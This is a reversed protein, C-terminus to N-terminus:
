PGLPYNNNFTLDRASVSTELDLGQFGGRAGKLTSNMAMHVINIKTVQNPLLGASATDNADGSGPNPQNVAPASTSSNYLDYSFKLYAVNEAVPMPAHGSVQRMLRPPSITNDVYYTIVLLRTGFGTTNTAISALSKPSTSAQNMHLVDATAFTATTATASATVEAVVATGGFRFLVLDGATLGFVSDNVNQITAGNNTCNSSTQSGATLAFTVTTANTTTAQYCDLFFTADTYVVTVADTAGQAALLTPGRVYGPLLGYLYPTTGQVPYTVSTSNAAGLYCPTGTAQACGYVPLTASTPLQIAAGNGLGAGALSLDHTLMNSAARFDQQLEARQTVTWTAAVGQSYLQVAAGLVITGLAMAIVMELLSFGSKRNTSRGRM